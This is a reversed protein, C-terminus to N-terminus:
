TLLSDKWFDEVKHPALKTADHAWTTDTQMYHTVAGDQINFKLESTQITVNNLQLTLPSWIVSRYQWFHCLQAELDRNGSQVCTRHVLSWPFCRQRCKFVDTWLRVTGQGPDSQYVSLYRVLDQSSRPPDEVTVQVWPSSCKYVLSMEWLGGKSGTM